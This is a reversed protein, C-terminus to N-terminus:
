QLVDNPIFRIETKIERLEVTTLLKQLERQWDIPRSSAASRRRWWAFSAARQNQDIQQLLANAIEKPLKSESIFSRISEQAEMGRDVGGIVAKKIPHRPDREGAARAHGRTRRREPAFAPAAAATWRISEM